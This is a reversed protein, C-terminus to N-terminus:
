LSARRRKWSADRTTNQYGVVFDGPPLTYTGPEPGTPASETGTRLDTASATVPAPVTVTADATGCNRLIWREGYRAASTGTVYAQIASARVPQGEPSPAHQDPEGCPSGWTPATVRKKSM